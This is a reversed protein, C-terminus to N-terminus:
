LASFFLRFITQNLPKKILKAVDFSVIVIIRVDCM